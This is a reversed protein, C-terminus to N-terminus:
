EPVFLEITIEDVNDQIVRATGHHLRAIEHVIFLGLHKGDPPPGLHASDPDFADITVMRPTALQNRVKFTAGFRESDLAVELHVTSGPPSFKIANHLLNRLALRLLIPDVELYVAQESTVFAIRESEETPCDTRALEAIALVECQRFDAHRTRQVVTAGVIANSLALTIDDLVAQTRLAAGELKDRKISAPVIEAIVSQLAAQANNLPQRVEHTLINLMNLREAAIRETEAQQALLLIAQAHARATRKEAFITTRQLRASVLLMFSIQMFFATALVILLGFYSQESNDLLTHAAGMPYAQSARWAFGILALSLCAVMWKQGATGAWRRNRVVGVIGALALLCISTVIFLLRFNELGPVAVLTFTGVAGYVMLVDIRKTRGLKFPRMVALARLVGALANISNPVLFTYTTVQPDRLHVILFSAAALLNASIWYLINRRLESRVFLLQCVSFALLQVLQIAVLDNPSIGIM